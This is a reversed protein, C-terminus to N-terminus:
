GVVIRGKMGFTEHLFHSCHFEYAGPAPAVLTLAAEGHGDVAVRGNAVRVRDTGTLAAAFFDRAVFDHGSGALNILHLVYRHGHVLRIEAPDFRFNSLRVDVREPASQAMAPGAVTIALAAAVHSIPKPM